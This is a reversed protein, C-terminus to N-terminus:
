KAEFSTRIVLNVWNNENLGYVTINYEDDLILDPLSVSNINGIVGDDNKYQYNEKNVFFGSVFANNNESLITLYRTNITEFNEWTFAPLLTQTQVITLATKYTTANSNIEIKIPSSTYIQGDVEYTVIAWNDVSSKRSFRRLQAGFDTDNDLFKRRYNNFDTNEDALSETEYYRFDRANEVPYFYIFSDEKSDNQSLGFATIKETDNVTNAELYEELNQPVFNEEIVLNVWNDTQSVGMITMLYETDVKLDKPTETNIDLTVNSTDYYSFLKDETYTGSVFEEEETEFLAQFYVDNNTTEFDTWTFKPNLTTPYEITLDDEWKTPQSDNKLLIPNSIQLVGDLFFTVLCWSETSNNSRVFRKLKGGFVDEVNLAQRKYSKFDLKDVTADTAEYYRIDTAGAEPYYFIYTLDKRGDANAACAIVGGQNTNPITELFEGLNRPVSIDNDSSCSVFVALLVVWFVVNKIKM